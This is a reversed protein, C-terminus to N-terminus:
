SATTGEGLATTSGVPIGETSSSKLIARLTQLLLRVDQWISLSEIYMVDLLLKEAPPTNYKGYIQAFGTLGAKVKTRVPFNPYSKAYQEVIEPREPRPGVLSMAGSLVNFLQPLEDIRTRRILKGIPTVRKDGFVSLRPVGDQEADLCMSRFKYLTFHKGRETVRVQRFIGPHGDYIVITAWIILMLWSLLIIALLSVTIDLTRKAIRTGLDVEAGRPLFMPTHSVWSVRASNVLVGSFTALVYIRKERVYCYELLTDQVQGGVGLLFISESADICEIINQIPTDESIRHQIEFRKTHMGITNCYASLIEKRGYVITTPHAPNVRYYLWDIVFAIPIAVALQAGLIGLFALPILLRHAILDLIFYQFSNALVLSLTWSLVIELKGFSGFKFGGYVNCAFALIAAYVLLVVYNGRYHYVTGPYFMNQGAFFIGVVVFFLFLTAAFLWVNGAKQMM